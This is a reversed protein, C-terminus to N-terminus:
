IRFNWRFTQYSDPKANTTPPPQGGSTVLTLPDITVSLDATRGSGAGAASLTIAAITQSLVGAIALVGASSLTLNSLTASLDGTTASAEQSIAGFQFPQFAQARGLRAM